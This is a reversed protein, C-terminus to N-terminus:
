QNGSVMQSNRESKREQLVQLTRNEGSIEEESEKELKEREIIESM